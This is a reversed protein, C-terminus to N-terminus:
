LRFNNKSLCIRYFCASFVNDSLYRMHPMTIGRRLAVMHITIHLNIYITYIYYRPSLLNTSPPQSPEISIHNQRSSLLTSRDIHYQTLMTFYVNLWKKFVSFHTVYSFLDDDHGGLCTVPKIIVGNKTGKDIRHWYGIRFYVNYFIYEVLKISSVQPLNAM